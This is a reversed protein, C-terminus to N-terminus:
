FGEPVLGFGAFGYSKGISCALTVDTLTVPKKLKM